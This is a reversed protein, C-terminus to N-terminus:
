KGPKVVRIAMLYAVGEGRFEINELRKADRVAIYVTGADFHGEFSVGEANEVTSFGREGYHRRIDQLPANTLLRASWTDENRSVFYELVAGSPWLFESLFLSTPVSIRGGEVHRGSATVKEISDFRYTDSETDVRFGHVEVSLLNPDADMLQAIFAKKALAHNQGCGLVALLCAAIGCALAGGPALSRSSM